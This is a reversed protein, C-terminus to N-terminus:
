PAVPRSSPGAARTKPQPAAPALQPPASRRGARRRLQLVLLPHLREPVLPRLAM